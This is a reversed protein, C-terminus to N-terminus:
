IQMNLALDIVDDMDLYKYLGLRGTFKIKEELKALENYKNLLKTNINDNIPYYPEDGLNGYQQINM